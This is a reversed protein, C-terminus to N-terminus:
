VKRGQLVAVGLVYPISEDGLVNVCSENVRMCDDHSLMVGVKSTLFSPSGEEKLLCQPALLCQPILAHPHQDGM